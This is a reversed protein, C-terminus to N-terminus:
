ADPFDSLDVTAVVGRSVVEYDSTDKGFARGVNRLARAVAADRGSIENLRRTLVAQDLLNNRILELLFHIDNLRGVALKSATLDHIEPFVAVVGIRDDGRAISGAPREIARTLWQVPLPPVHPPVTDVYVGLQEHISSEFGLEAHASIYEEQTLPTDLPFTDVDGTGIAVAIRINPVSGFTAASGIVAIRQSGYFRAAHLVAQCVIDLAIVPDNTM